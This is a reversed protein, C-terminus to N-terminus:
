AAHTEDKRRQVNLLAVGVSNGILAVLAVWYIDDVFALQLKSNDGIRDRAHWGRNERAHAEVKAEDLLGRSILGQYADEAQVKQMGHAYQRLGTLGVVAVLNVVFIIWKISM